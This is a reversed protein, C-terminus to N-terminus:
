LLIIAPFQIRPLLLNEMSTWGTREWASLPGPTSTKGAAAPAQSSKAAANTGGSPQNTLVKPRNASQPPEERKSCGALCVALLGAALLSRLAFSRTNM